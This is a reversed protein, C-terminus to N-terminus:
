HYEHPYTVGSLALGPAGSMIKRDGALDESICASRKAQPIREESKDKPSDIGLRTIRRKSFPPKTKKKKMDRTSTVIM